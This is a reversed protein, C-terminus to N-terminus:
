TVCSPGSVLVLASLALSFGAPLGRRLSKVTRVGSGGRALKTAPTSANTNGNRAQHMM